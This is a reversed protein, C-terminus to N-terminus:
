SELLEHGTLTLFIPEDPIAPVVATHKGDRAVFAKGATTGVMGEYQAAKEAWEEPQMWRELATPVNAAVVLRDSVEGGWPHTAAAEAFAAIQPEWDGPLAGVIELEAM